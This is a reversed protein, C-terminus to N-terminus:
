LRGRKTLCPRDKRNSRQTMLEDCFAAIDRLCVADYITDVEPFFSYRRWRGFWEIMGLTSGQTKNRVEFVHTSRMAERRPVQIFEVWKAM